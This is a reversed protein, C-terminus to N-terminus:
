LCDVFNQKVYEDLNHIVRIVYTDLISYTKHLKAIKNSPLLIIPSVWLTYGDIMEFDRLVRCVSREFGIVFPIDCEIITDKKLM